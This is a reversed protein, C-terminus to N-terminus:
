GQRDRGNRDNIADLLEVMDEKTVMKSLDEKTAMGAVMNTLDEKTAMNTMKEEINSVRSEINLVRSEISSVRSEINSVNREISQLRDMRRVERRIREEFRRTAWWTIGAGTGLLIALCAHALAM